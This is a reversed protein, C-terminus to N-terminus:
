APDDEAEIADVRDPYFALHGRIGAVAPYPNPYSWAADRREGGELALHHYAARGKYPCYSERESPLLLAGDIDGPPIYLVPPYSAETLRLAARSEAVIRGGARVRVTGPQPEVVIPHDPGPEKM